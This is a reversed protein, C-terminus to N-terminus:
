RDIGHGVTPQYAPRTEIYDKLSASLILTRRGVRVGAIHGRGLLEYFPSKSLGTIKTAVRITMAAPAPTDKDKDQKDKDKDEGADGAIVASVPMDRPPDPRRAPAIAELVDGARWVMRASPLRYPAPL